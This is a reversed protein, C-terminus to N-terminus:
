KATNPKGEYKGAVTRTKKGLTQALQFTIKYVGDENKSVTFQSGRDLKATNDFLSSTIGSSECHVTKGYDKTSLSLNLTELPRENKEISEIGLVIIADEDTEQATMSVVKTEQGDIKVTSSADDDDSGCATFVTFSALLMMTLAILKSTKSFTTKMFTKKTKGHHILTSDHYQLPTRRWDGHHNTQFDAM